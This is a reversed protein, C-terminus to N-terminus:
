WRWPPWRWFQTSPEIEQEALLAEWLLWTEEIKGGSVRSISIGNLDLQGSAYSSEQAVGRAPVQIKFRTVVKGEEASVQDEITVRTDPVATQVESLIERLKDVGRDKRDALDHLVYGPAFIADMADFNGQNYVQDWFRSITKENEKM